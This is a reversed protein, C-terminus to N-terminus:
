PFLYERDKVGTKEDNGWIVQANAAKSACVMTSSQDLLLPKAPTGNSDTGPKFPKIISWAPNASPKDEPVKEAHEKKALQKEAHEKEALEKEALEKEALQKDAARGDDKATAAKAGKKKDALDQPDDDVPLNHEM